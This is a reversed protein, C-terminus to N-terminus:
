RQRNVENFENLWANMQEQWREQAKKYLDQTQVKVPTGYEDIIVAEEDPCTLLTTLLKPGARWMGESDAFLMKAEYKEKLVQKASEYDFRSRITQTLEETNM